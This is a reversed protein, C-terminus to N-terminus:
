VLLKGMHFNTPTRELMGILREFPFTWWAHVPGFFHLYEALHLAMHHNPRLNYRPLLEQMLQLYSQMHQLYLEATKKSTKHSTAISVASILSMTADLMKKRLPTSRPSNTDWMKQLSVPLYTTALIRWQDAKIKGHRAEGLDYPVSALWSPTAMNAIDLRITAVEEATLICGKDFDESAD